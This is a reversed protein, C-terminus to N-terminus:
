REAALLQVVGIPTRGSRQAIDRVVHAPGADIGKASLRALAVDVPVDLERCVEELSKWGYGGGEVIPRKPPAVGATAVRYMEAPPTARAAALDALTAEATADIGASKLNSVLRDPEVHLIDALRAITLIEAHPVPADGGPATWGNKLADGARMMSSFPPLGALTAAMVGAVLAGAMVLERRRRSGTAARMTLYAVVVRWNFVLHLIALVVFISTFVTHIAQWDARRLGGLSWDSWNAVRGPPAVYLVAGSLAIVVFGFLLAFSTFSKWYFRRHSPM